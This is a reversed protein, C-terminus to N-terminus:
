DSRDFAQSSECRQLTYTPVLLNVNGPIYHNGIQLGEPPSQRFVGGPVPPHLRLSENIVGNLYSLNQLSPISFDREMSVNNDRLESRIKDAISPDKAIYYFAYTLTCSTTDSGAIIILRSDGTLLMRNLKPDEYFNEAEILHGIVDQDQKESELKREEVCKESYNLLKQIPNIEGPIIALLNTFWPICGLFKLSMMGKESLEIYFHSDGSELTNFSRGFGLSGMVDYGFYSLWKSINM